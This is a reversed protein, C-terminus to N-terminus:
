HHFIVLDNSSQQPREKCSLTNNARILLERMFARWIKRCHLLSSSMIKEWKLSWVPLATLDVGLTPDLLFLLGKGLYASHVKLVESMQIMKKSIHVVIDFYRGILVWCCSLKFKQKFLIQCEIQLAKPICCCCLNNRPQRLQWVSTYYSRTSDFTYHIKDRTSYEIKALPVVNIFDMGNKTM